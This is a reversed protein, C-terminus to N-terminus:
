LLAEFDPSEDIEASFTDRLMELHEARLVNMGIRKVENPTEFAQKAYQCLTKYLPAYDDSTLSAKSASAFADLQHKILTGAFGYLTYPIGDDLLSPATSFISGHHSLSPAKLIGIITQIVVPHSFALDEFVPPSNVTVVIGRRSILYKSRVKLDKALTKAADEGLGEFGLHTRMAKLVPGKLGGRFSSLTSFLLSYLQPVLKRTVPARMFAWRYAEGVLQDTSSPDKPFGLEFVIGIHYRAKMWSFFASSGNTLSKQLNNTSGAKYKPSPPMALASTSAATTSTTTTATAAPQPQTSPSFLDDPVNEPDISGHSTPAPTAGTLAAPIMAMPTVRGLMALQAARSPTPTGPMSVPPSSTSLLRQVAQVGSSPESVFGQSAARAQNMARIKQARADDTAAPAANSHKRKVGLAVNGQDLVRFGPTSAHSSPAQSDTGGPTLPNPTSKSGGVDAENLNSETPPIEDVNMEQETDSEQEAPASKAAQKKTGGAGGRGPLPLPEPAVGSRRTSRSSAPAPEKSTKGNNKGRRASM